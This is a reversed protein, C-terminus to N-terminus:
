PSKSNDFDKLCLSNRTESYEFIDFIHKDVIEQCIEKHIM